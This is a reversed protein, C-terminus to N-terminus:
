KNVNTTDFSIIFSQTEIMHTTYHLSNITTAFVDDQKILGIM